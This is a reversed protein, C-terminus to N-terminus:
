ETRLREEVAPDPEVFLTEVRDPLVAGPPAKRPKRVYKRRTWDVPVSGSTRARSALAALVAAEALDRAPPNGEGQWRLIVHAGAAHRAHLWVDDPSSHHFTLDDNRRAGRGVRIELGGSSRYVRYPLTPGEDAAGGRGQDPLAHRLEDADVQGARAREMLAELEQWRERATAILDPLQAAAREARAARDYYVRANADPTLAPDLAVTVPAGDFGALTVETAGQRVEDFRALLLDGLGRLATPDPLRDREEELSGVRGRARDVQRQLGEMLARPLLVEGAAPGMRAAQAFADLLHDAPRSSYGPLPMPYPQPGHRGDLVVAQVPARGRAVDRLHRWLTYGDELGDEEQALLAPANIASTWAFTSLLVGRRRGPPAAELVARWREPEVGDEAGERPAAPLPLYPRGVALTRAGERERLLHRITAEQGETVFANGQNGLLEVVVAATAPSGRVRQLAFTLTRDDAPARVGLLRAALPRADPPPDDAELVRLGVEDPHLLFVVTAERFYLRLRLADYELHVARLRAGELRGELAAATAAVLPADWVM